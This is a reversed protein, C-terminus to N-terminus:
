KVRYVIRGKSPDVPTMELRVKDGPMIRIFNLRMKGSLHCLVLHGNPLKVRFLTNPLCEAVEGEIEINGQHVM